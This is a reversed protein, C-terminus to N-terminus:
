LKEGAALSELGAHDLVQITRGDVAIFGRNQMKTLTRSLTEAITGLRAALTAKPIDLRVEDAGARVARDLVYKALRASVEKLALDDILNVFRRLRTSLIGLMALLVEPRERGVELFAARPFYLTESKELAIAGAPYAGGQFVAVEGVVQGPGFLHLIQERGDAGIRHVKVRGSVVGYFGEAPDDQTFLVENAAFARVALAGALLRRDAEDMPEFLDFRALMAARADLPADTQRM